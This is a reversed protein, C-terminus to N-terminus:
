APPDSPPAKLDESRRGPMTVAAAAQAMLKKLEAFNAARREREEPTPPAEDVPKTSALWLGSKIRLRRGYEASVTAAIENPLPPRNGWRHTRKITEFAQRLLDEPLHRLALDWAETTTTVNALPINFSRCWAILKSTEVAMQKASAPQLAATIARTAPAILKAQAEPIRAMPAEMFDLAWQACSALAIRDTRSQPILEGAVTAAEAQSV